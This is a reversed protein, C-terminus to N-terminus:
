QIEIIPTERQVLKKTINVDNSESGFNGDHPWIDPM